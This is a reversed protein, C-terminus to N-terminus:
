PLNNHKLRYEYSKEKKCRNIITTEEIAAGMTWYVMNANDFYVIDKQYFKGAYGKERIHQIFTIFLTKNVDSKVIYEHPWTQAYTKAFVWPVDNIFEQLNDPLTIM